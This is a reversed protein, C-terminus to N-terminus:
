VAATRRLDRPTAKELGADKMAKDFAVRANKVRQGQYELVWKTTATERAALLVSYLRDTMPVLARRKQSAHREPNRLDILKREFDVRDWTLELIASKRGATALALEIFLALRPNKEASRRFTTFEM